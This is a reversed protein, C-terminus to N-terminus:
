ANLSVVWVFQLLSSEGKHWRTHTQAHYTYQTLCNATYLYKFELIHSAWKYWCVCVGITLDNFQLIIPMNKIGWKQYTCKTHTSEHDALGNLSDMIVNFSLLVCCKQGIYSLSCTLDLHLLACYKSTWTHYNATHFAFLIIQLTLKGHDSVNLNLSIYALIVFGKSFM